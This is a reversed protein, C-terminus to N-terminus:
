QTHRVVNKAQTTYRTHKFICPSCISVSRRGKAIARVPTATQCHSARRHALRDLLDSYLDVGPLGCARLSGEQKSMRRRCRIPCRIGQGSWMKTVNCGVRPGTRIHQDTVLRQKVLPRAIFCGFSRKGNTCMDIDYFSRGFSTMDRQLTRNRHIISSSEARWQNCIDPQM